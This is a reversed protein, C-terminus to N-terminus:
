GVRRLPVIEGPAASRRCFAAWDEMLRRRKDFLDGRRYAAEVKDGVAHALAAEAVEGGHSTTEACWDRFTSRFGHVTLDGRKMRRLVMTMAMNSLPRGSRAGPFVHAGPADDARFAEAQRIAELADVSLPVRHERGSKMRPGPITWVAAQLDFEGWQAGIAEGTRSATLIAVRLALAGIGEQARLQGMFRGIDSWPLAAHHEVPAVKGRAPLLNALHGRWRAPNDGSRWERTAAYNLVAEIRGRVRQATEPKVRWIPELAALVQAAGVGAVPLDGMHPMAYADLTTQWQQRHKANLWSHEHAELYFQAVARFTIARAQEAQAAARAALAEATRRELPDIGNRVLRWRPPAAARAEALSVANAGRARGLGMERLRGGLIYRFIWFAPCSASSVAAGADSAGAPKRVLLYLGDGDRYRGPAATRVKAATLPTARKPM